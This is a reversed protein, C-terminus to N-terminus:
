RVPVSVKDSIQSKGISGLEAIGQRLINNAAHLDRDHKAGCVPCVWRREHLTLEKHVYGCDCLKSSPFFREIKHVTVGYRKALYELKLIFEGHALDQMKRGWHKSMGILCLDEIYIHDYMQCLEHAQHWQWNNRRNKILEEVRNKARRAEKQHNSGKQKKSFRRDASRKKGLARKLHQPSQIRRGDSLTMYTKLGFDIGVSAGNHTKEIPEADKRFSLIVYFDGLPSRRIRVTQPRGLHNYPRSMSFKYRKNIKNITIANGSLSYGGQKFIFSKFMWAKKFKPPRKAIHKFFRIFANDLRQLIEQVTQSHLRCNKHWRVWKKQMRALPIYRKYLKYYRRQLGLAHNWVWAAENLMADLHKSRKTSYLKYKYAIM